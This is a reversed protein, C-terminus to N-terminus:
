PIYTIRSTGLTKNLIKNMDMEDWILERTNDKNEWYVLRIKSGQIEINTMGDYYICGGSNFYNPAELKHERM